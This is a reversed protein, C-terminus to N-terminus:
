ICSLPHGCARRQRLLAPPLFMVFRQRICLDALRDAPNPCSDAGTLTLNADPRTAQSAGPRRASLEDDTGRSCARCSQEPPSQKDFASVALQGQDTVARLLGAM